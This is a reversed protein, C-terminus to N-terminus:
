LPSDPLQMKREVCKLYPRTFSSSNIEAGSLCAVPPTIKTGGCYMFVKVTQPDLMEAFFGSEYDCRKLHVQTPHGLRKVPIEPGLKPFLKLSGLKVRHGEIEHIRREVATSNSM